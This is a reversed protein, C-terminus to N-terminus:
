RGINDIKTGFYGNSFPLWGFRTAGPFFVRFLQVISWSDCDILIVSQQEIITAQFPFWYTDDPIPLWYGGINDIKSGFLRILFLWRFIIAPPCVVLFFPLIPWSNCDISRISQHCWACRTPSAAPDIDASSLYFVWRRGTCDILSTFFAFICYM